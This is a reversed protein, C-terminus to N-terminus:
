GYGWYFIFEGDLYLPRSKRRNKSCADNQSFQHSIEQKNLIFYRRRWVRIDSKWLNSDVRYDM